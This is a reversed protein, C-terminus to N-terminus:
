KEVIKAGTSGAAYINAKGFDSTQITYVDKQPNGLITYELGGFKKPNLFGKENGKVPAKNIPYVRWSSVTSPLVVYKKKSAVVKESSVLELDSMLVWSVIEKLLAQGSKVQQVTFERGKIRDPIIQGTAYRKANNKVKVRSGKDIYAPKPTEKIKNDNPNIWTGAVGKKTSVNIMGNAKKFVYYAGKKVKTKVNVNNKADISNVYGNVDVILAYTEDKIESKPETKVPKENAKNDQPNIWSGAVGEKKTVNLMEAYKKYIYYTGAKVTTKKNARKKADTSTVYGSIDTIIKYTKSSDNGSKPIEKETVPIEVKVGDQSKLKNLEQQIENLFSNWRKEDYIRHPCNKVYRSYGKKVGIETWQKHSKIRDIGWNREKLLQAIFRIAMKESDYYRQGGSKSYCIEIGISKRNGDGKGSDGAHWANRNLPIGQVVEKGDIAFHYSVESNNNIMYKIEADASADNYTNHVTIYEATMKYPCKINYKNTSVLNQRPKITM